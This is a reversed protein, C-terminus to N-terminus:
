AEVGLRKRPSEKQVERLRALLEREEKSLKDPVDVKVTVLLDGHGRGRPKPVGKGRVRFTKGSPTGAPVRLTVNGNMTPVPIEAGLAAESYTVPLEVTLDSNRRGFLRHSQVHVTVFLDGSTSGAPGPEGRGALRIRAGDKVGAPIKVSFERTRRVIGSGHCTECPEEIIRGSGHCEPCPRAISFVGQSAAVTGSGGCVPCTKPHTGPKAGSGHCTPCQAPGQIRLPVTSGRVADDFSITVETQLDAGKSQRPGRAARGGGFLGFLDDLDEFGEGGFGPFGEVRVRRNGGPPGFGATGVGSSVMERVEDYQKRREADGLVDYAASIEKFRDEAEKNGQNADPHHQQALKRYKKKIEPASANKPVGLTQYYDKEFWERRVDGNV